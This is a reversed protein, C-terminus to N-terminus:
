GRRNLIFLTFTDSLEHDLPNKIYLGSIFDGRGVKIFHRIADIYEIIITEYNPNTAWVITNLPLKNLENYTLYLKDTM